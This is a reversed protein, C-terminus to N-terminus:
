GPIIKRLMKNQLRVYNSEGIHKCGENNHRDEEEHRLVGYDDVATKLKEKQDVHDDCVLLEKVVIDNQGNDLRDQDHKEEDDEEPNENEPVDDNLVLDEM